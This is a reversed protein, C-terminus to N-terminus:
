DADLTQWHGTAVVRTAARSLGKVGEIMFAYRQEKTLGRVYRQYLQQAVVALKFLAFSYYFPMNTATRGTKEEWRAVLEARTLSGPLDTPGFRTARLMMPDKEEVWYSLACGLDMLPDGITSMEWDLVAVVRSLDEALVVNDYKFDNHILTAASEPPVNAALWRAVEDMEPIEDTKAKEYRESWGKVQRQNYGAPKGLDALGAAALDVGHIEALTDILAESLHLMREPPLAIGEPWQTQPPAGPLGRPARLIVGHVREMVYFPGGIVSEDECLAIVRPVKPWVKELRSLIRHERGMDHASAIKVGPPGRRLVVERDGVRLLYTVNSYGRPFQMVEITGRLGQAELWAELRTVDLEAGERVKEPRDLTSV